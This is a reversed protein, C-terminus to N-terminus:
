LRAVVRGPGLPPALGAAPATTRQAMRGRRSLYEFQYGGTVAKWVTQTRGGVASHLVSSQAQRTTHVRVMLPTGTKDTVVKIEQKVTLGTAVKGPEAAAWLQLVRDARDVARSGDLRTVAPTGTKDSSCPLIFCAAYLLCSVAWRIYVRFLGTQLM